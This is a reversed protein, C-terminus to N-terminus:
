AIHCLINLLVNRGYGNISVNCITNQKQWVSAGHKEERDNIDALNEGRGHPTVLFIM